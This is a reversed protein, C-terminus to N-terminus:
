YQKFNLIQFNEMMLKLTSWVKDRELHNNRILRSADRLARGFGFKIFQMYYYLPDIYDDLSDYKKFHEVYEIKM